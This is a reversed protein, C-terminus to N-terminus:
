ARVEVGVGDGGIGPRPHGPGAGRLVGDPAQNGPRCRSMSVRSIESRLWALPLQGTGLRSIGSAVQDNGVVVQGNASVAAAVGGSRAPLQGLGMFMPDATASAAVLFTTPIILRLASLLRSM